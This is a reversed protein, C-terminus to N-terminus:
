LEKKNDQAWVTWINPLDAESGVQVIRLLLNITGRWYESFKLDKKAPTTGTIGSPGRKHLIDVLKEVM